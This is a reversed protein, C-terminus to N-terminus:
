ILVTTVFLKISSNIACWFVCAITFSFTDCMSYQVFKERLSKLCIKDCFPEQVTRGKYDGLQFVDADAAYDAHLHSFM